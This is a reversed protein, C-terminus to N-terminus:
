SVSKLIQKWELPCGLEDFPNTSDSRLGYKARIEDYKEKRKEGYTFYTILESDRCLNENRNLWFNM